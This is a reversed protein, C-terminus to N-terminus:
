ALCIQCEVTVSTSITKTFRISNTNKPLHKDQLSFFKKNINTAVSCSYSLSFCTTKRGRNSKRKQVEVFVNHQLKINQKYVCKRSANDYINKRSNLVHEDSLLNNIRTSMSEAFNQTVSPPHNSNFDIYKPDNNPKNYPQYKGTSLNLTVDLFNVIKLNAESTISLDLEQKFVKIVDIRIKEAQPGGVNEFYALGGGRYM